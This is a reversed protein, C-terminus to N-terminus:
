VKVVTGSYVKTGTSLKVTIRARCISSSLYLVRIPQSIAALHFKFPISVLLDLLPLYKRM